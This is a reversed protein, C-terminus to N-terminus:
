LNEFNRQFEIKHPKEAGPESVNLTFRLSDPSAFGFDGIYYVAGGENINRMKITRHQAMMNVSYATVDARIPMPLGNENPKSVAVTLLLRHKSRKIGYAKAVQPSLTDTTIVNYNIDVNGFKEIEAYAPACLFLLSFLLMNTLTKM